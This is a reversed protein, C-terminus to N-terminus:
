PRSPTQCGPYFTNAVIKSAQGRTVNNGPRFYPRNQGDCPEGEGGCPYGSMVGLQTLRMIWAYFPHEEAVDTYFQGIPTGGIGAANSVTKALQGRTANAYPRFYSRNDPAICPEELVSGCSYGGMYGLRSMRNIWLYFPNSPDVDEYVQEGADDSLGAANSVMKAIQSRTIDGGPRFTGDSYGSIIGKCALCRIYAYFTHDLPVDSFTITCLTPTSTSIVTVTATATQTSTPASQTRTPSATVTNQSPTSTSRTATATTAVTTTPAVTPTRTHTAQPTISATATASATPTHTPTSTQTPTICSGVYREILTFVGGTNLSGQDGVAWAENQSVAAVGYLDNFRADVNPSPVRTWQTGDWHMVLTDNVSQIYSEGVAWVDNTSAASVDFLSGVSDGPVAVDTWGAGDWHVAVPQSGDYGVAWVDNSSIADVGSLWRGSTGPSPVISWASGDWHMTTAGSSSGGVAWVDAASIAVIAQLAGGAPTPVASWQNGNWHLVLSASSVSGVAWVDDHSIASLGTLTVSASGINPGPVASWASGNWHMTLIPSFAANNRGVAWVDDSAIAAVAYIIRGGLADPMPVLSWAYGDWHVSFPRYDDPGSTGVAWIDSPSVVAIARLSNAQADRNPSDMVTWGTSCSIPTPTLAPCSGIYRLTLARFSNDTMVYQEGAIWIDNSSLVTMGRVIGGNPYPLSISLNNWQTGDWHAAEITGSGGGIAWVNNSSVAEVALFIANSVSVVETWTTGDWHLVFAIYHVGPYCGGAGCLNYGAAWVDNPASASVDFLAGSTAVPISSWQTGDWHLTLASGSAEGVAWVDNSSIATVGMLNGGVFGNNPNPVVSWTNGDWHLILVRSASEGVAWIDDRSVADIGYLMNYGSQSPNPSPVISWVDGDWHMIVTEYGPGPGSAYDAVGVAWVDDVSVASVAHLMTMTYTNAPGPVVSWTSGDWHEILSQNGSYGVTWIDTDSLADVDNLGNFSVDPSPSDVIRWGPVCSPPTAAPALSIGSHSNSAIATHSQTVFAGFILTVGLLLAVIPVVLRWGKRADMETGM